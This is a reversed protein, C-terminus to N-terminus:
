PDLGFQQCYEQFRGSVDPLVRQQASLDAKLHDLERRAAELEAELLARDELHKPSALLVQYLYGVLEAQRQLRQQTATATERWQQQLKHAAEM